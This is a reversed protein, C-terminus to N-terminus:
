HQIIWLIGAIIVVLCALSVLLGNTNVNEGGSQRIHALMFVWHFKVPKTTAPEMEEDEIEM